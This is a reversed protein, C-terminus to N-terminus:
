LGAKFVGERERKKKISERQDVGQGRSGAMTEEEEKEEEEKERRVVM